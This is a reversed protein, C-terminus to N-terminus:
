LLLEATEIGKVFPMPMKAVTTQNREKQRFQAQFYLNQLFENFSSVFFVLGSKM